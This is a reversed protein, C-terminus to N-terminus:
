LRDIFNKTREKVHEKNHQVYNGLYICAIILFIAIVIKYLNTCFLLISLAIGILFGFFAGGYQNCFMKFNDM